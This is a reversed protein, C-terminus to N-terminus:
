EIIETGKPPKFSFVKDDVGTDERIESFVIETTNGSRDFIVLSKIRGGEMTRLLLKKMAAGPKTPLLELDRPSATDAQLVDFDDRIHGADLLFAVPVNMHEFDTFTKKVLQESKKSYFLAAKGDILVLQGNTYDIRLKGPKKVSLTGEYKQTKGISKLNNTQVVNAKLDTLARYHDEVSIVVEQVSQAHAPVAAILLFSVVMVPLVARMTNISKKM